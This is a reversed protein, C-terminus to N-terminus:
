RTHSTLKRVTVKVDFGLHLRDQLDLIEGLFTRGLHVLVVKQLSNKRSILRNIRHTMSLQKRAPQELAEVGVLDVEGSLQVRRARCSGHKQHHHEYFFSTGFANCKTDIPPTAEQEGM